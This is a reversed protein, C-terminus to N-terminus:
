RRLTWLSQQNIDWVELYAQARTNTGAFFLPLFLIVSIYRKTHHILQAYLLQANGRCIFWVQCQAASYCRPHGLSPILPGGADKSEIQALCACCACSHSDLVNWDDDDASARNTLWWSNRHLLWIRLCGLRNWRLLIGLLFGHAWQGSM